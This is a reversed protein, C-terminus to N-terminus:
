STEWGYLNRKQLNEKAPLYQLNSEVHLGSALIGKLPIIHDVHYGDPCNLYICKIKDINAWPPCQKNKRTRYLKSRHADYKLNAKRWARNRELCLEYHRERYRTAHELLIDHNKDAWKKNSAQHCVKCRSTVGFKGDKQKYFKDLPFDENCVSCQKTIMQDYEM